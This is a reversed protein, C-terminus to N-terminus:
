ENEGKKATKDAAHVHHMGKWQIEDTYISALFGLGKRMEPQLVHHLLMTDDAFNPNPIGAKKWEYQMDFQYNQGAVSKGCTLLKQCFKWATIEDRYDPWYNGDPTEESFFPVVLARDESPAFSICTIMDGKTEIDSALWPSPVIFEQYFDELDQLTPEIHLFRAPRTFDPTAGERAAKCLDFHQITQMGYDGITQTTGYVPLVKRRSIKSNGETIRGRASEIPNDGTCLAWTALDGCAIVVNPSYGEIRNWLTSLEPYFEPALYKGKKIQKLHPVGEKKTTFFSEWSYRGPPVRNFVNTFFCESAPIGAAALQHKFRAANGDSWVSGKAYEKNSMFDGVVVYRKRM